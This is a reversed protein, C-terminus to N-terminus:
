LTNSFGLSLFYLLSWQSSWPRGTADGGVDETLPDEMMKELTVSLPTLPRAPVHIKVLGVPISTTVPLAKAPRTAPADSGSTV